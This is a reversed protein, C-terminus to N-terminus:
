HGTTGNRGKHQQSLPFVLQGQRSGGTGRIHFCRKGQSVREWYQILHIEKGEPKREDESQASFWCTPKEYNLNM